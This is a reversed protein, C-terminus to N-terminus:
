QARDRPALFMAFAETTVRDLHHRYLAHHADGPAVRGLRAGPVLHAPVLAIPAAVPVLHAGRGSQLTTLIGYMEGAITPRSAIVLRYQGHKNTVLYIFGSQNPIAVEGAQTFAADQRESERFVLSSSAEDWAIETRYAYVAEAASFSPRLTVYDGEIWSVAPRAYSGLSDPALGVPTPQVAHPPPLVEGGRLPRELAQELRVITALTFPRKGALAKELTSLSIRAHDALAQRSIRRRAIEERVARAIERTQEPSAEADTTLAM